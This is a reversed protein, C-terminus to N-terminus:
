ANVTTGQFGNDPVINNILPAKHLVSFPVSVNGGLTTLGLTTLGAAALPDLTINATVSTDTTGVIAGGIAPNDSTVAFATGLDTGTFEVAFNTGQVGDNPSLNTLVPLPFNATTFSAVFEGSLGNGALDRMGNARIHITYTKNFDLLNDPTFTFGSNGVAALTGPVVSGELTFNLDNITAPDIPEDFDAQIVIGRVVNIAGNLPLVSSVLPLVNDHVTVLPDGNTDATVVASANTSADTAQVSFNNTANANLPVSVSFNGAGSATTNVVASGGTVTVSSSAEAQGSVQVAPQNTFTPVPNVVPAAPAVTDPPITQFNLLQVGNPPTQLPNLCTDQLGDTLRIHITTNEDFNVLPTYTLTRNLNSFVGSGPVASAMNIDIDDGTANLIADTYVSFNSAALNGPVFSFTGPNMRNTFDLVISQNLPRDISGDTPASMTAIPTNLPSCTQETSFTWTFVEVMEAGSADSCIGGTGGILTARYTTNDKLFYQSNNHPTDLGLRLVAITTGGAPPSEVTLDTPIHRVPNGLTDLEELYFTGAQVLDASIVEIAGPDGPIFNVEVVNTFTDGVICDSEPTLTAFVSTTVQINPQGNLPNIGIVVPPQDAPLQEFNAPYTNAINCAPTGIGTDVTLSINESAIAQCAIIEGQLSSRIRFAASVARGPPIHGFSIIENSDPIPVGNVDVLEAQGGVFLELSTYLAPRPSTNTIEVILDYIEGAVVDDGAPNSPHRVVVDFTPPGFVQVSTGAAGSVPEPASLGGGTLFGNFDVDVNHTGIGDGRIVFQGTGTQMPGIDGMDVTELASGTNITSVDTGPGAKVPSLGAPLVINAVMDALVFGASTNQIAITVQFFEKLTKIRGDIIIVGPITQGSPTQIIVINSCGTICGTVPAPTGGGGGGGGGGTWGTGGGGYSVGPSSPVAVPQTVTVPFQGITLVITFMSVNFNSPDDLDIVGNQVLLETEEITLPRSTAEAIIISSPDVHVVQIPAASAAPKPAAALDDIATAILTNETNPRLAVDLCFDTTVADLQIAVTNAGGEIKVTTSERSTGCVQIELAVSAAAVPDLIPAPFVSTNKIAPTGIYPNLSGLNVALELIGDDLTCADIGSFAVVGGNDDSTLSVSSASVGGQDMLTVNFADVGDSQGFQVEGSVNDCNGNGIVDDVSAGLIPINVLTVVEIVNAALSVARPSEDPDDSSISLAGTVTTGASGAPATFTVVVNQTAGPDLTFPINQGPLPAVAYDPNDSTVDSVNLPADGLNSITLQQEVSGGEPTAGFLLSTASDIDPEAAPPPLVGNGTVVVLVPDVNDANSNITITGNFVGVVAPSFDIDVSRPLGGDAIDFALPPFVSFPAGSSTINSVGLTANGTNEVNLPLSASSGVFVDGFDLPNPSVDITPIEVPPDIIACRSLSCQFTCARADHITIIGDGNADRPDDPGTAPTYRALAIQRIDNRDVDGDDDADCVAAALVSTPSLLCLLVWAFFQNRYTKM